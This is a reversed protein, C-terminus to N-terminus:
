QAPTGGEAQFDFGPARGAGLTWVFGVMLRRSDPQRSLRTKLVPTDLMQQQRYSGLIDQATLLLSVQDDIRHRYGLDVGTSAAYEGQPTLRRGNVFASLQIFDQPTPQWNLSAEGSAATMARAGTFGPGGVELESWYLNTTASYSLSPSIRGNATLELGAFRTSSVNERTTLFIGGGLDQIVDAVRNANQRYYLTAQYVAPAKRYAYGLEFVQTEQPKLNPNGARYNVPDVLFRFANFDEPSPRQVRQSYNATLAQTDSLKWALHLTPYARVYANEDARNQTVQDLDLRVDELRLGALVTLNGVPREYTVYAQSLQQRYRFLNTLTPDPSLANATAGRFGRNDYANDDFQLDLGAKLTAGGSMPRIYDAKLDAQRLDYGLRQADFSDAGAPLAPSTRGARVRDDQTTEYSLNVTFEQGAEDLKRRLSASVEGNAREQHLDLGRDFAQTLVGAGDRRAFRSLGQLGFDLYSARVEAGLRTRNDLDYDLSARGSTTEFMLHNVQDQVQHDYGGAVPDPRSRDEAVAQKGPDHRFNIDAAVSLTKSNFGTSASANLRDNGVSVRASGTRGAGKAKSTILNIVGASGDARFEASPNTIVEVREIRNAPMQQLAQGKSDGQFQSSPKGDILITVNSDARLSVEGQADVEVSPVNRLADGISGSQAQLDAAVSYSRRDISTQVAAAQGTIVVESVSKGPAAKNAPPPVTEVPAAQALAASPATAALAILILGTRL